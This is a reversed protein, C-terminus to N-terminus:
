LGRESSWSVPRWSFDFQLHGDRKNTENPFSSSSALNCYQLNWSSSGGGAATSVSADVQRCLNHRFSVPKM